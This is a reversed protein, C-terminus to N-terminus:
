FTMLRRVALMAINKSKVSRYNPPLNLFSAGTATGAVSEAGSGRRGTGDPAQEDGPTSDPRKRKLLDGLKLTKAGSSKARAEALLKELERIREAAKEEKSRKEEEEEQQQVIRRAAEAAAAAEAATRTAVAAAEDALRLANAAAEKWIKKSAREEELRRQREAVRAEEREKDEKERNGEDRMEEDEKVEEEEDQYDLISPDISGFVPTEEEEEEGSGFDGTEM